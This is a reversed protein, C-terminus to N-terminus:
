NDTHEAVVESHETRNVAGNSNDGGNNRESNSQLAKANQEHRNLIKTLHRMQQNLLQIETKEEEVRSNYVKVSSANLEGMLKNITKRIQRDDKKTDIKAVIHLKMRRRQKM